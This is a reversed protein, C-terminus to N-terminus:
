ICTCAQALLWTNLFFGDERGLDGSKGAEPIVQVGLARRIEGINIDTQRIQATSQLTSGEQKVGTQFM